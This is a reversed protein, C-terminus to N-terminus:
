KTPAPSAEPGTPAVGPSLAKEATRAISEAQADTINPTDNGATQHSTILYVVSRLQPLSPVLAQAAALKRESYADLRRTLDDVLAEATKLDGELRTREEPTLAAPGDLREQLREVRAEADGLRRITAAEGPSTSALVKAAADSNGGALPAINFSAGTAQNPAQVDVGVKQNSLNAGGDSDAIAAGTFTDAKGVEQASRPGSTANSGGTASVVDAPNSRTACACASLALVIAAFLALPVNRM